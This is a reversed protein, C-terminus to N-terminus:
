IVADRRLSEIDAPAYGLEGLVEDTHEGLEPAPTRITGPTRALNVGPAQVSLEGLKPHTVPRALGLHRVQENEFVEKVNLIPGSPGGAANLREIWAASPQGALIKEIEANLAGRNRSRNALTAFRPDDALAEVGLAGCLRRFMT